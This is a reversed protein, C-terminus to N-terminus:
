PRGGADSLCIQIHTPADKSARREAAPAEPHPIPNPEVFAALWRLTPPLGGVDEDQPAGRLPAEFSANVVMWSIM